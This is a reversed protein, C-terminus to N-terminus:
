DRDHGGGGSGAPHPCDADASRELCAIQSARINGTLRHLRSQAGAPRTAYCNNKSAAVRLQLHPPLRRNILNKDCLAYADATNQCGWVYAPQAPVGGVPSRCRLERCRATAPPSFCRCVWSCEGFTSRLWAGLSTVAPLNEQHDARGRGADSNLVKLDGRCLQPARSAVRRCTHGVNAAFADAAKRNAATRKV